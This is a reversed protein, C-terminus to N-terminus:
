LSRALSRCQPQFRCGRGQVRCLGGDRCRWLTRCGFHDFHDAGTGQTRDDRPHSRRCLEYLNVGITQNWVSPDTEWFPKMVDATPNAGMNGANNVLVGVSGLEAVIKVNMDKVAALDTVDAQVAIAKGGEARIEEVVSEARDLHYDNVAVGGSNHQALHLAIQRGVGQGAGTVLAVRGALDLIDKSVDHEKM